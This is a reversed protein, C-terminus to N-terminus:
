YDSEAAILEALFADDGPDTLRARAFARVRERTAASEEVDAGITVVTSRWDGGWAASVSVPKSRADVVALRARGDAGLEGRGGLSGTRVIAPIGAPSGFGSLEAHVHCEVIDTDARVSWTLTDEAADFVGPPVGGWNISSTGGAIVGERGTIHDAGAALAYDDRRPSAVLPSHQGVDVGLDSALDACADVLAAVRSDGLAAHASLAPGHPRLLGVIESDSTDDTFFEEANATLVAIEADLLAADLVAIGDRRSAPWWRRM